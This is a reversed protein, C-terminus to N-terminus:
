LYKASGDRFAGLVARTDDLTVPYLDATLRDQVPISLVPHETSACKRVSEHLRHAKATDTVLDSLTHVNPIPPPDYSRLLNGNVPDIIARFLGPQVTSRLIQASLDASNAALNPTGAHRTIGQVRIKGDETRTFGASYAALWQEGDDNTIVELGQHTEGIKRRILKATACPDPGVIRALAEHIPRQSVRQGTQLNHLDNMEDSSVALGTDLDFSWVGCAPPTSVPADMPGYHVLIASLTDSYDLLPRFIYRTGGQTFDRPYPRARIATVATEVVTRHTASRIIKSLPLFPKVVAGQAIVTPATESTFVELLLWDGAQPRQSM